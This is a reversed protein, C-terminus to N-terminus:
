KCHHRIMEDVLSRLSKRKTRNPVKDVVTEAISGFDIQLPRIRVYGHDKAVRDIMRNAQGSGIVRSLIQFLDERFNEWAEPPEPEEKVPVSVEPEEPEHSEASEAAPTITAKSKAPVKIRQTLQASGLQQLASANERLFNRAAAGLQDLDAHPDVLILLRIPGEAFILASGKDYGFYFETINRGVSQYGDCMETVTACVLNAKKDSIPLHNAVIFEGSLLCAGNVQGLRHLDSLAAVLSADAPM